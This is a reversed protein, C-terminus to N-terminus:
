RGFKLPYKMSVQLKEIKQDSTVTDVLAWDIPWIFSNLWKVLQLCIDSISNDADAISSDM